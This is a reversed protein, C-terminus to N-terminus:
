SRRELEEQLRRRAGLGTVGEGAKARDNLSSQVRQVVYSPMNNNIDNAIKVFRALGHRASARIALESLVSGGAPLPRRSGPGPHFPMFGFPKTAAARTVDWFDIGLARAHMALENVLAINVHRFTNEVLKTM